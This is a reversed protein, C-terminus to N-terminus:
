LYYKQAGCGSFHGKFNRDEPVPTPLLLPLRRAAEIRVISLRVVWNIVTQPCPPKHIGLLPALLALVRAVARFSIRALVFLQLALHVLDGKPRPALHRSQRQLQHLQARTEQLARRAQNREARLRAIQKRQYRTHDGRQMAKHKWQTRSHKVTSLQSM